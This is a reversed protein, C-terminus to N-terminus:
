PPVVGTAWGVTLQRTKPVYIGPSLELLIPQTGASTIPLVLRQAGRVELEGISGPTVQFAIRVPWTTGERPTLVVAGSGSVGQLNVVLTNRFWYQPFAAPAGGVSAEDLEHIEPPPPAPGTQWPVHFTPWHMGSLHSCGSLSVILALIGIRVVDPKSGAGSVNEQAAEYMGHVRDRASQKLM